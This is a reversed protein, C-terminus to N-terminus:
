SQISPIVVTESAPGLVGAHAAVGLGATRGQAQPGQGLLLRTIPRPVLPEQCGAEPGVKARLSTIRSLLGILIDTYVSREHAEDIIVVKYKLLLFDQRTSVLLM